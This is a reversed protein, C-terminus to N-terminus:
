TGIYDESAIDWSGIYPDYDDDCGEARRHSGESAEVERQMRELREMETSLDEKRRSLYEDVDYGLAKLDTISNADLQKMLGELDYIYKTM